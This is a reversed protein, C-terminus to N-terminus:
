QADPGGTEEVRALLERLRDGLIRRADNRDVAESDRKMLGLLLDIQDALGSVTPVPRESRALRSRLANVVGTPTPDEARLAEALCDGVLEDLEYAGGDPRLIMLDELACAPPGTEALGRCSLAWRALVRLYSEELAAEDCPYRAVGARWGERYPWFSLVRYERFMRAHWDAKFRVPPETPTTRGPAPIRIAPDFNTSFTKFLTNTHRTMSRLMEVSLERFDTGTELAGVVDNMSSRLTMFPRGNHYEALDAMWRATVTTDLRHSLRM